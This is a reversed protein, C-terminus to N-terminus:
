RALARSIRKLVPLSLTRCKVRDMPVSSSGGRLLAACSLNRAAAESAFDCRRLGGEQRLLQPLSGKAWAGHLFLPKGSLGDLQLMGVYGGDATTAVAPFPAAMQFPAGLLRFALHFTDKDGYGCVLSAGDPSYIAGLFVDIRVAFLAALALAELVQAGSKKVLFQGSEQAKYSGGSDPLTRWLDASTPADWLDPWAVAGGADPLKDLLHQPAKLPMNDADLFLCVECSSLMIVVAKLAYKQLKVDTGAHQGWHLTLNTRWEWFVHRWGAYPSPLLRLEGDLSALQDRQEQALVHVEGAAM